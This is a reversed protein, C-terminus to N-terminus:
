RACTSSRMQKGPLFSPQGGAATFTPQQRTGIIPIGTLQEIYEPDIDYIQGLKVVTEIIEQTSMSESDDWEFKHTALASYAPSINILKPRITANFVYKFFQKDSEFRDKALRFQIDASGVFSKEDAIGSGGLVRKSIQEDCRIDLADFPAVGAGGPALLDVKENGRTVMFANSKFNAAMGVIENFRKQDERDTNIWLAPVGYKEIYDLWSGFGLKKALVIVALRELMGLDYDEGIQVYYNSEVGENYPWGDSEGPSRLIVKKKANFHAQPIETVRLLEGNNDMDFLELLTTGQFKSFLVKKILDDFWPREFLESMEKNENGASDVFKFKSRQAFLIRSDIVSALHNDLMLNNYLDALTERNPEDPDTAESVASKWIEITKESHNISEKEIKMSMKRDEIGRRAYAEIMVQNYDAKKLGFEIIKSEIKAELKDFFKM